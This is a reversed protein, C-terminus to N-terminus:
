SAQSAPRKIAQRIGDLLASGLLPKEIIAVGANAARRKLEASPHTTVLIAPVLIKRDRLESILDVGSLGPLKQDIVLCRWAPVAAESLLEEAREYTRVAFGEVELSFKLSKRVAADDDVVVILDSRGEFESHKEMARAVQWSPGGAVEM